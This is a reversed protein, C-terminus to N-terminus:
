KKHRGGRKGRRKKMHRRIKNMARLLLALQKPKMIKHLEGLQKNQLEQMARHSNHLKKLAVDYAQQDNSDAKFLKKLQQRADKVQGQIKKREVHAKKLITEVKKVTADDLGIKKKLLRRRLKKFNKQADKPQAAAPTAFLTLAIALLIIKFFRMM